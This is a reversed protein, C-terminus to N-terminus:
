YQQDSLTTNHEELGQQALMGDVATTISARAVSGDDGEGEKELGKVLEGLAATAAFRM